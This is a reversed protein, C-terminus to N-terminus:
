SMVVVNVEFLESIVGRPSFQGIHSFLNHVRNIAGIHHVEVVLSVFM